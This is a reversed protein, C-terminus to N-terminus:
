ESINIEFEEWVDGNWDDGLEVCVKGSGVWRGDKLEVDGETKEGIPILKREVWDELLSVCEVETIDNDMISVDNWVGTESLEFYFNKM